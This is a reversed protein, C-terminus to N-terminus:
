RKCIHAYLICFTIHLYEFYICKMRMHISIISLNLSLRKISLFDKWCIAHLHLQSKEKYYTWREIYVHFAYLNPNLISFFPLRDYIYKTEIERGTM